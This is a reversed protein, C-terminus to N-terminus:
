QGSAHRIRAERCGQEIDDESRIIGTQSEVQVTDRLDRLIDLELELDQAITIVDVVLSDIWATVCSELAKTRHVLSWNRVKTRVSM